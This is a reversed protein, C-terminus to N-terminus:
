YNDTKLPYKHRHAKIAQASRERRRRAKELADLDTSASAVDPNAGYEIITKKANDFEKLTVVLSSRLKGLAAHLQSAQVRNIPKADQQTEAEDQLLEEETQPQAQTQAKRRPM